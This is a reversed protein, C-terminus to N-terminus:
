GFGNCETGTRRVHSRLVVVMTRGRPRAVSPIRGFSAYHFRSISCPEDCRLAGASPAALRENTRSNQSVRKRCSQSKQDHRYSTANRANEQMREDTYTFLHRGPLEAGRGRLYIPVGDQSGDIHLKNLAREFKFTVLTPCYQDKKWTRISLANTESRMGNIRALLEFNNIFFVNSSLYYM